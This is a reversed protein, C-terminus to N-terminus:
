RAAGWALRRAAVSDRQREWRRCALCWASRGIGCRCADHLLLPSRRWGLVGLAQAVKPVSACHAKDTTGEQFGQATGGAPAEDSGAPTVPGAEHADHLQTM